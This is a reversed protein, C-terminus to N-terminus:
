KRIYVLAGLVLRRNEVQRHHRLRATELALEDFSGFLVCSLRGILMRGLQYAPEAHGRSAKQRADSRDWYEQAWRADMGCGDQGPPERGPDGAESMGRGRSPLRALRAVPERALGLHLAQLAAGGELQELHPGLM